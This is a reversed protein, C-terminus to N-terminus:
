AGGAALLDAMALLRRFVADRVSPLVPGVGAPIRPPAAIRRPRFRGRGLPKPGSAPASAPLTGDLEAVHGRHEIREGKLGPDPEPASRGTPVDIMGRDQSRKRASSSATARGIEGGRGVPTDGPMARRPM